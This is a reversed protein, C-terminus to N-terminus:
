IDTAVSELFRKIEDTDPTSDIYEISESFDIDNFYCLQERFLRTNFHKSFIKNAASIMDDINLHNKLLFFLDVYDKWKNRRGLAYAKMAGLGPLAPLVVNCREWMIPTQLDFPFHFLTVRVNGIQISYEDETATFVNEINFDNRILNREIAFPNIPNRSALDFDISKRHGIQLALGTGGALYYGKLTPFLRDALSLQDTTLINEFM